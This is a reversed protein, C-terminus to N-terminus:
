AELTSLAGEGPLGKMTSRMSGGVTTWRTSYADGDVGGNGGGGGVGSLRVAVDLM